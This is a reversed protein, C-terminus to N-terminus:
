RAETQDDGDFDAPPLRSAARYAFIMGICPSLLSLVAIYALHSVTPTDSFPLPSLTFGRHQADRLLHSFVTLFSVIWEIEGRKSLIYVPVGTALGGMESKGENEGGGEERSSSAEEGNDEEEAEGVSRGGREGEGARGSWGSGTGEEESIESVARSATASALGGREEMGALLVNSSSRRRGVEIGGLEVDGDEDDDEVDEVMMYRKALTRRRRLPFLVQNFGSIINESIERISGRLDQREEAGDSSHYGATGREGGGRRAEDGSGRRWRKSASSSPSSCCHWWRSNSKSKSCEGGREQRKWMLGARGCQEWVLEFLFRTTRLILALLAAFLFAIPLRHLLPRTQHHFPSPQLGNEVSFFHDLDLVVGGLFAIVVYFYASFSLSSYPFLPTYPRLLRVRKEGCCCRLMRIGWPLSRAHWVRLLVIQHGGGRPAREEATSVARESCAHTLHPPSSSQAPLTSSSSPLIHAGRRPSSPSLLHPLSPSNTRSQSSPSAGDEEGGVTKIRLASKRRFSLTASTVRLHSSLLVSLCHVFSIVVLASQMGHVATDVAALMVKMQASGVQQQLYRALLIFPLFSPLKEECSEVGATGSHTPDAGVRDSLRDVTKMNKGDTNGSSRVYMRGRSTHTNSVLRRKGGKSTGGHEGNSKEHKGGKGGERSGKKADSGSETRRAEEEGKKSGAAVHGKEEGGRRGKKSTMFSAASTTDLGDDPTQATSGAASAQAPISLSPPPASTFAPLNSSNQTQQTGELIVCDRVEILAKAMRDSASLVWASFVFSIFFAIRAKFLASPGDRWKRKRRSRQVESVGDEESERVQRGVDSRWRESGDGEQWTQEASFM